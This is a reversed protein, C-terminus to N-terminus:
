KERIVIKNFLDSEEYNPAHGSSEFWYIKKEAKLFHYYKDILSYHTNYDYRGAFFVVPVQLIQIEEFLNAKAAIGPWLVTLSNKSGNLWKRVNLFGYESSFISDIIYDNLSNKQHLIGGYKLLLERQRYFDKYGGKYWGGVPAEMKKIEELDDLDKVTELLYDYAKTEAVSTHVIQGISFYKNIVEPHKYAFHIGILSGWSHGMLYIKNKNFRSRLSNSLQFADEVFDDLTLNAYDQDRIVSLGAGRQDWNVVIFHEELERNYIRSLPMVATGPGGHLFLLVPNNVSRGRISIYQEIGRIKVKEVISVPSDNGVPKIQPTSTSCSFCFLFCIAVYKM